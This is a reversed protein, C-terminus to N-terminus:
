CSPWPVFNRGLLFLRFNRISRELFWPTPGTATEKNEKGFLVKNWSLNEGCFREREREYVRPKIQKQKQKQTTTSTQLQGNMKEFLGDSCKSFSGSARVRVASSRNEPITLKSGRTSM